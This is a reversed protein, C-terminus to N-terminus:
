RGAASRLGFGRRARASLSQGSGACVVECVFDPMGCGTDGACCALVSMMGGSGGFQSFNLDLIHTHASVYGPMHYCYSKIMMVLHM